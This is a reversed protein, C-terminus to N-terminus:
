DARQFALKFFVWAGFAGAVGQSLLGAISRTPAVPNMGFALYLLVHIMVIGVFGALLYWALSISVFRKLLLGTFLFAILLGVLIMPLYLGLMGILDQWVTTLRQAMSVEFGMETIRAINIQSVFPVAVLYTTLVAALFATLKKM